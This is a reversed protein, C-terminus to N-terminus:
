TSKRPFFSHMTQELVPHLRTKYMSSRAPIHETGYEPHTWAAFCESFTERADVTTGDAWMTAAYVSVGKVIEERSLSRVTKGFERQREEDMNHFIHHGMEHRFISPAAYSVNHDGIRLSQEKWSSRDSSGASTELSAWDAYYRGGVSRDGERRTIPYVSDEGSVDLGKLPRRDMAEKALPYQRLDEYTQSITNLATMQVQKDNIGYTELSGSAKLSDKKFLLGRELFHTRWEAM